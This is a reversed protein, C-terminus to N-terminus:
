GLFLFNHRVIFSHESILHALRVADFHIYLYHIPPSLFSDSCQPMKMAMTVFDPDASSLGAM